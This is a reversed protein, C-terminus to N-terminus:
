GLRGVFRAVPLPVDRVPFGGRVQVACSGAFLTRVAAVDTEIALGEKKMADFFADTFEPWFTPDYTGTIGLIKKETGQAEFYISVPQDAVLVARLITRRSTEAAAIGVREDDYAREGGCRRLYTAVHLFAGARM